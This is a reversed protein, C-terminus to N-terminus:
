DTRHPTMRARLLVAREPALRLRDIALIAASAAV